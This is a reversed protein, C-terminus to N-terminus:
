MTQDDIMTSYIWLEVMNGGPDSNLYIAAVRQCFMPKISTPPSHRVAKNSNM